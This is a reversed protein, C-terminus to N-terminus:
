ILCDALSEDRFYVFLEIVVVFFFGIFFNSSFRFLCKKLFSM